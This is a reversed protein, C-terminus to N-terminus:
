LYFELGVKFHDVRDLCALIWKQALEIDKTDLALIIPSKM